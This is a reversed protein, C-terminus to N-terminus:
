DTRKELARLKASRARPNMATESEPPTVPRRNLLKASVKRSQQPASDRAHEPMGAARRFFRKVIRDELSHFSIVAMRGGPALAAFAKPLATEIVELERNVAIRIGQFVRTAPHIRPPPGPRRPLAEVVLQAFASTTRLAETGRAAEVAAVVRRWSPEEGYHRVARILDRRDATELFEAATMGARPDLRMDLPGDHRFSFGRDATDYHFSSLGLDFLVADFPGEVTEDLREFNMGSFSFRGPFARELDRAREAAEPDCDLAVVSNGRELFARAHGGGGFTADLVRLGGRGAGLVDMVEPLLVPIHGTEAVEFVKGNAEVGRRDPAGARRGHGRFAPARTSGSVHSFGCDRERAAPMCGAYASRAASARRERGTNRLTTWIATEM